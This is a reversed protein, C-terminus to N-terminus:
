NSLKNLIPMSLPVAAVAVYFLLLLWALPQRRNRHVTFVQWGLAVAYYVFAFVYITRSRPFGSVAVLVMFFGALFAYSVSDSKM